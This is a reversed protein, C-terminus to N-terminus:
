HLADLALDVCSEISEDTNIVTKSSTIPEFHNRLAVYLNFDRNGAPHEGSAAQSRLRQRASEESCICELIRWPQQHNAAFQKVRDIQSAKSFPRGDLFIIRGPDQSFLYAATQLMIEMIFEDQRVSYEVDRESFLVGRISDKNLVTGSVRGALERALTTKGSGPLGAMMVLM